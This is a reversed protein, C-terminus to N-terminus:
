GCLAGKQEYYKGLTIHGSQLTQNEYKHLNYALSDIYNLKPMKVLADNKKGSQVFPWDGMMKVITMHAFVSDLETFGWSKVYDKELAPWNESILKKEKMTNYFADAMLFYGKKNPHLHDVMLNKGILGNPSANEFYYKM